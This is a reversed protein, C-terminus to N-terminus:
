NYIFNYARRPFDIPESGTPNVGTPFGIYDWLSGTTNNVPNWVPIEEAFEGDVGGTIFDEWKDWLLRYPVFFYHVYINIEHLVPAVLPQFRIVAQNGFKWFDGPVMEDCMIPILQGMDCTLKKEYSLNFVSKGPHLGGTHRFVANRKRKM